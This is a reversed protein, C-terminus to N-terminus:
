DHQLARQYVKFYLAATHEIMFATLKEWGGEILHEKLTANNAIKEIHEALETSNGPEILLGSKEHEIINPIGGARSGIAPLGTSMGELIVSGLGETYSPHILLDAAAFWDGMNHQRGMFSINTLGSAQKELECRQKGDGLLCIHVRPDKLLMAANVTVDFGKHPIMNGAQIVLFKDKFRERINAVESHNIPYTVPSDPITMIHQQPLRQRVVESVCTSIGVIAAANSYAFTTLWKKKIPNDLRRTIIYPTQSVKHQLAAWYIAHGEHVHLVADKPLSITHGLLYHRVTIVECGLDSIANYFPSNTLAIVAINQKEKLHQQILALTQQEGGSFGRALNVHYIKMM